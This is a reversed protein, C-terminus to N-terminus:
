AQEALVQRLWAHGKPNPDHDVTFPYVLAERVQMIPKDPEHANQMQTYKTERARALVEVYKRRVKTPVGRAIPQNTGNVSPCAYPPDNENTTSAITITLEENMFAESEILDKFDKEQSVPTAIEFNEDLEIGPLAPKTM